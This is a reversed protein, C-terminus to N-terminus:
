IKWVARLPLGINVKFFFKNERNTLTRQNFTVSFEICVSKFILSFINVEIVSFDPILVANLNNQARFVPVWSTEDAFHQNTLGPAHSRGLPTHIHAYTYVLTHVCMTHIHTHTHTHTHIHGARCLGYLKLTWSAHNRFSCLATLHLFSFANQAMLVCRHINHGGQGTRWLIHIKMKKFINIHYGLYLIFSSISTNAAGM